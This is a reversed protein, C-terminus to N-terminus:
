IEHVLVEQSLMVIIRGHAVVADGDEVIGEVVEWVPEAKEGAHEQWM